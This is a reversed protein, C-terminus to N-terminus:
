ISISVLFFFCVQAVSQCATSSPFDIPLNPLSLIQLLPVLGKQKVFEKCHDDTSNNSLIAEVFKMINTIYDLLPICELQNTQKSNSPKNNNTENSTTANTANDVVMIASEYEYINNEDDSPTQANNLGTVVAGSANNATDTDAAPALNIENASTTANANNVSRNQLSRRRSNSSSNAAIEASTATQDAQTQQTAQRSTSPQQQQKSSSSGSSSSSSSSSQRQCIYNPNRGMEILQNLLKIISNIAEVRLTPQHRMLEDMASGLQSATGSSSSAGAGNLTTAGGNVQDANRRRKMAPLYDPSLLVQFLKDFPKSEIFANLGNTNLCLASFVTPLSGLVERTAPVNKKLLAYLIVDTLGNEQLQSLQSPEQFIFLQVVDTSLLFLSAGYYDANSIIHKLSNPLSGEMMHRISDGLNPVSNNSSDAIAKKFFNLISKLLASRQHYCTLGTKFSSPMNNMQMTDEDAELEIDGGDGIGGGVEPIIATTENPVTAETENMPAEEPQETEIDDDAEENAEEDEENRIDVELTNNRSNNTSSKVQIVFPQEKRCENVEYDLRNIFATLGNHAEFSSMDLNTILDIVRVARTVFMIFEQSNHNHNVVKLLTEMIGCKVLADGGTDYTALHYLFSFLSTAFQHPFPEKSPDILHDVCKRVLTPLLGHYSAAQTTEIIETLKNTKELHIIATLTKLSAAKIEPFPPIPTQITTSSADKVTLLDVLEEILGDYLLNNAHEQIAGSYVLISLSQLRTQVFLKRKEYNPFSHALRIYTYLLVRKDEPIDHEKLVREMIVAPNEHM